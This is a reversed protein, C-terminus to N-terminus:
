EEGGLEPHLDNVRVFGSPINSIDIGNHCQDLYECRGMVLCASTNRFHRGHQQAARISQQQQWLEHRFEELDSDLRPIEQRAFYFDPRAAIDDTLREGFEEPTEVRSLLTWGKEANGSQMPEGHGVGPEGNKKINEKLVREGNSDVVVKLGREDLVPIQKPAISPKRIVDYLVTQVDHGLERAACMYLSIQQDIRLRKWYDSEPSLDEGCTKHEMVAVRGDNLRVIKDIKGGVRFVTSTGGTEPNRIPLDFSIESAIVEAVIDADGGWRWWYGALLRRVIERETLWEHQKEEDNAWLPFQDYSETARLLATTEEEGKCKLDLGLHVASGMRLPKADTDRRVGQEYKYLHKRPCTKFTSMRSNTLLNSGAIQPLALTSVM